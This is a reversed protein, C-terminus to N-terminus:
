AARADTATESPRRHRPNMRGCGGCELETCTYPFVSAERHGCQPCATLAWDWIPSEPDAGDTLPRADRTKRMM